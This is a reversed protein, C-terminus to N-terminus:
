ITVRIRVHCWVPVGARTAPRFRWAKAASLLMREQFRNSPSTLRVQEVGGDPRVLLDFTGINGPTMWDAPETPLHPRLIQPPTVSPDDALYIAQRASSSPPAVFNSGGPVPLTQIHVVQEGAGTDGAMPLEIDVRDGPGERGIRARV